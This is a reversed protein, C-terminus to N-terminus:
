HALLAQELQDILSDLEAAIEVVRPNAGRAENQKLWAIETRLAGLEQQTAFSQESRPAEQEALAQKILGSANRSRALRDIIVADQAHRPNLSVSYTRKGTM